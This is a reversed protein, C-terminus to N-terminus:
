IISMQEHYHGYNEVFGLAEEAVGLLGLVDLAKEIALFLLLRFNGVIAVFRTRSTATARTTRDAAGDTHSVDTASTEPDGTTGAGDAPTQTTKLIKPKKPNKPNKAFGLLSLNTKQPKPLNKPTESPLNKPNIIM